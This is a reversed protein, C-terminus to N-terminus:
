VMGYTVPSDSRVRNSSSPDQAPDRQGTGERVRAAHDM